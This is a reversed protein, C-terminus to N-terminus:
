GADKDGGCGSRLGQRGGGARSAEIAANLALLNTQSIIQLIADALVNIEEVTRSDELAKELRSKVENFIVGGSAYSEKFDEELLKQGQESIM